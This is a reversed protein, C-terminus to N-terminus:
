VVARKRPDPFVGGYIPIGEGADVSADGTAADAVAADARGADEASAADQATAADTGADESTAADALAADRGADPQHVTSCGLAGAFIAARAAHTAARSLRGQPLPEAAPLRPESSGCFPCAPEDAYVHRECASCLNMKTM